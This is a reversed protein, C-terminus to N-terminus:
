ENKSLLSLHCLSLAVRTNRHGLDGVGRRHDHLVVQLLQQGRVSVVGELARVVLEEGAGLVGGKAVEGGVLHRGLLSNGLLRRGNFGVLEGNGGLSDTLAM